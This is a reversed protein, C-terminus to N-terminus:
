RGENMVYVTTKYAGQKELLGQQKMEGLITRARRQKVHLLEEVQHSTIKGNQKVYQLIQKQQESLSDEVLKDANNIPVKDTSTPVKDAGKTGGATQGFDYSYADDM